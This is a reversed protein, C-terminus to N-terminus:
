LKVSDLAKMLETMESSEGLDEFRCGEAQEWEKPCYWMGDRDHWHLGGRTPDHCDDCRRYALFYATRRLWRALFDNWGPPNIRDGMTADGIRVGLAENELEELLQEATREYFLHQDWFMSELHELVLKTEEFNSPCITSPAVSEPSRLSDLAAGLIRFISMAHFRRPKEAERICGVLGIWVKQMRQFRYTDNRQIVANLYDEDEPKFIRVKCTACVERHVTNGNVNAAERCTMRFGHGCELALEPMVGVAINERIPTLRSQFLDAAYMAPNVGWTSPWLDEEAQVGQPGWEATIRERVHYYAKASARTVLHKLVGIWERDAAFSVLSEWDAGNLEFDQPPLKPFPGVWHTELRVRFATEDWIQQHVRVVGLVTTGACEKLGEVAAFLRMYENSRRRGSERLGQLPLSLSFDTDYIALDGSDNPPRSRHGVQSPPGFEVVETPQIPIELAPYSFRLVHHSAHQAAQTNGRKEIKLAGLAQLLALDAM